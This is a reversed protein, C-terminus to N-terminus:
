LKAIFADCKPLMRRLWAFIRRIFVIVFPVPLLNGLVAAALAVPYDLGFAIGYPLGARLEIIPLM